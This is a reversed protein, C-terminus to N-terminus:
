QKTQSSPAQAPLERVSRVFIGTLGGKSFVEGQVEVRRAIFEMLKANPNSHDVPFSIYIRRTKEELVGLSIGKGACYNTCDLHEPSRSNHSVYCVTDIVEGVLKISSGPHNEHGYLLFSIACFILARLVNRVLTM